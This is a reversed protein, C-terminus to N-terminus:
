ESRASSNVELVASYGGDCWLRQEGAVPEGQDGQCQLQPNPLTLKEQIMRLDPRDTLLSQVVGQNEARDISCTSYLIRGGDRVWGIAKNVIEKQKRALQQLGGTRLLHRVEVRRALVGSNSCPADILVLDFLGEQEVLEGVEHPLCTKVMSIGLRQCNEAVRELREVDIDCAIIEGKNNMLEALHTTKGGPAACLDLIRQGPQPALLPAVHMATLDQVSFYGEDFGPLRRPNVPHLMQIASDHHLYQLESQDFLSMLHEDSCHIRNVRLTLSPRENNAQCISKVTEVDFQKLWREILWLPHAYAGSLYKAINKKPDPLINSKFHCASNKQVPLLSRQSESCDTINRLISRLLANVFQDAGRLEGAKAQRVAQDVAAFDPTRELYILQYLGVRLIQLVFPDIRRMPRSSQKEILLDLTIRQRCTGYALETAFRKDEESLSHTSFIKGLTEQIFVGEREFAILSNVAVDRSSRNPLAIPTEGM